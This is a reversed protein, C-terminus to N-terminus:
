SLRGEAEIIARHAEEPNRADRLAHLVGALSILRSLRALARLHGRDDVSCILFFIDTLTGRAGGFPIGSASLGLALFPQALIGPMPRRPHLLAVGNELATSFMEERVRVADAMKDADWLWGTREGLRAMESFVSNRTRALLPVAIAELPLMQSIMIEEPPPGGPASELVGEVRVLEEQDAVGIRNELWHHIDARAFRWQGAVKRGPLHGRDALRAVQQPTLHLYRALSEVGFDQTPM